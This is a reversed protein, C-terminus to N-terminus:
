NINKKIFEISKVPTPDINFKIALYITTYDLLYVLSVLKSLIGGKVSKIEKYEVNNQSLLKKLVQWREKTKIHDDEGEILIPQIMSKKEWAVVGNHCAELMDETSAHIKSNENLSNKFRIGVSQLGFPYYIIPSNTIWKALNLAVNSNTLNSSNIKTHMKELEMISELINKQNIGLTVHLVKLISYLYNIFSARPSHIKSILRHQIKNKKCFDLMKGGSTFCIIKCNMKQASELVSLTEATNGSVSIVVVLTNSNSTKPLVYGKVVNVHIKSKSLISSFIDGITGSGGMGAFIIHNINEYSIMEQNTEFSKRAIEPWKDYVEFM